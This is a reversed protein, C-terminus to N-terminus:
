SLGNFCLPVTNNTKIQRKNTSYTFHTKQTAAYCHNNSIVKTCESVMKDDKLVFDYQINGSPVRM